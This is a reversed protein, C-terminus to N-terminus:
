EVKAFKAFAVFGIVTAVCLWGFWDGWASYVTKVHYVPAKALLSTAAGQEANAEAVVVGRYDSVTLRGQRGARVITYGNEVGRLIAMRSHLWGDAVFDWAPVFLLEVNHYGRLWVPFDMDKCIAMGAECPTGHLFGITKGPEFDGEFGQVHFRKQYEQVTGDPSIFEVLNLRSSEKRVAIGGIVTVHHQAAIKKFAGLLSDKLTERIHFIKEPFLVYAAGQNALAGIQQDYQAVIRQKMLTAPVNDQYLDEAVATIGVPIQTYPTEETSRLLGFVIVGGILVTSFTAILLQHRPSKRFHWLGVLAAPFLSATFVIGWIGTVSAIQILTVYNAQSYALSGATGDRSVSFLVFEIASVLAPFALVSWPSRSKLVIWRNICVYLGFALAPMLTLITIPLVPMLLSLFPVWNTRGILYAFFATFFSVRASNQLSVWLIPLPAIWLLFGFDGRIDITFYWLCGSLLTAAVVALRSPRLSNNM